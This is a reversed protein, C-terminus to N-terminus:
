LSLSDHPGSDPGHKGTPAQHSLPNIFGARAWLMPKATLCDPNVAEKTVPPIVQALQEVKSLRSKGM